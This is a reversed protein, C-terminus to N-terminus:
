DLTMQFQFKRRNKTFIISKLLSNEKFTKGTERPSPINFASPPIKKINKSILQSIERYKGKNHTGILIKKIKKM